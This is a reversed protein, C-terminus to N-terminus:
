ISKFPVLTRLKKHVMVTTLGTYNCIIYLIYITDKSCSDQQLAETEACLQRDHSEYKADGLSDVDSPQSKENEVMPVEDASESQIDLVDESSHQEDDVYVHFNM